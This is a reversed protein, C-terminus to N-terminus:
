SVDYINYVLNRSIILWNKDNFMQNSTQLELDYKKLIKIMKLYEKIKSKQNELCHLFQHLIIIIGNSLIEDEFLTM